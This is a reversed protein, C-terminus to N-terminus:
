RWTIVSVNYARSLGNAPLTLPVAARSTQYANSLRPPLYGSYAYGIGGYQMGNNFYGSLEHNSDLPLWLVLSRRNVPLAFAGNQYMQGIQQASLVSNYIQYDLMSGSFAAGSGCNNSDASGIPYYMLSSGGPVTRAGITNASFASNIYGRLVLGNFTITISSWSNAPIRGLNLCSQSGSERVYVNGNYLGILSGHTGTNAARQGLEDVIIGNGTSPYVWLSISFPDVANNMWAYGGSQEIYSGAVSNFSAVELDPAYSRNIFIGEGSSNYISGFLYDAYGGQGNLYMNALTQLMNDNPKPKYAGFAYLVNGSPVYANGYALAVSSYGPMYNGQLSINWLLLNLGSGYGRFTSGAIAYVASQTASVTSNQFTAPEATSSVQSGTYSFSYINRRTQVYYTGKYSSVGLIGSGLDASSAVYNGGITFIYLVNGSGVAITNYASSPSTTPMSALPANWVSSLVSGSLAYSYVYNLGSQTNTSVLYEGDVYLPAMAPAQMNTYAVETGNVPNLLYFGKATGFALYGNEIELPTTISNGASFNWQLLSNYINIGRVYNSANAFFLVSGYVAPVGIVNAGNGAPFSSKLIGTSANIMYVKNGAAVFVSGCGLVASPIMNATTSYTYLLYPALVSFGSSSSLQADHGYQPWSLQSVNSYPALASVYASGSASIISTQLMGLMAGYAQSPVSAYLGQSSISGYLLVSVGAAAVVLAFVADLTFIFGKLNRKQYDM